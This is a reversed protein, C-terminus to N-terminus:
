TKKTNKHIQTVTSLNLQETCTTMHIQKDRGKENDKEQETENKTPGRYNFKGLNVISVSYNLQIFVTSSYFFLEIKCFQLIEM